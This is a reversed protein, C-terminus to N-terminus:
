PFDSGGFPYSETRGFSLSYDCNPCQLNNKKLFISLNEEPVLGTKSRETKDTSFYDHLYYTLNYDCNDCWSGSGGQDDGVTIIECFKKELNKKYNM